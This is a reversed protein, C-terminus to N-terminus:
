GGGGGGGERGGEMSWAVVGGGGGGGGERDPDAQRVALAPPLPLPHHGVVPSRQEAEVTQLSFSGGSLSQLAYVSFVRTYM